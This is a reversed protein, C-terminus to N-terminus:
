VRDARGPVSRGTEISYPFHMLGDVRISSGSTSSRRTSSRRSGTASWTTCRRCRSTRRRARAARRQDARARRQAPPDGRVAARERARRQPERRDHDLLRVDADSFAHERDLNQLSIVGTARDGVVLPVFVCRSPPRARSARGTASEAARETSTRTSWSRNRTEICTSRFGIVEIPEDPFREGREISYPFHILRATATSSASTSSRRTSSRAPDPRRRPRVDGAHRPERGPRAPRRQDARARRQAPPDGRVAARERARREPERRADDAPARGVRQVRAGPRPEAALHRRDGARRRRAPVFVVSKPVSARVLVLPQGAEARGDRSTRTSSSRNGRRSRSGHPVRHADIPEDPFRVGREITYPFRIM